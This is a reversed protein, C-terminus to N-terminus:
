LAWIYRIYSLFFEGGIPQGALGSATGETSPPPNDIALTVPGTIATELANGNPQPIQSHINTPVGPSQLEGLGSHIRRRGRGKRGRVSGMDAAVEDGEDGAGGLAEGETDITTTTSESSTVVLTSKLENVVQIPLGDM